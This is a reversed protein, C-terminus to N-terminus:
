FKAFISDIKAREAIVREAFTTRVKGIRANDVAVDFHVIWFCFDAKFTVDFTAGCTLLFIRCNEVKVGISSQLNNQRHTM